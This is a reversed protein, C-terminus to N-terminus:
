KNSHNPLKLISCVWDDNIEYEVKLEDDKKWDDSLDMMLKLSAESENISILRVAEYYFRKNILPYLAKFIAEKITFQITVKEAFTYMDEYCGEESSEMFQQYIEKATKETMVKEIDIGLTLYDTNNAVITIVVNHSHSISGCVGQPWLPSRDSAMDPTLTSGTLKMLAERACLRGSIYESHRKNVANELLSPMPIKLKVYDKISYSTDDYRDMMTMINDPQAPIQPLLRM